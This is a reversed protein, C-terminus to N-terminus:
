WSSKLLLFSITIFNNTAVKFEIQGCQSVSIGSFCAAKVKDFGQKLDWSPGNNVLQLYNPQHRNKPQLLDALLGQRQPWMHLRPNRKGKSESLVNKTWFYPNPTFIIVQTFLSSTKLWIIINKSLFNVAQSCTATNFDAIPVCTSAPYVGYM